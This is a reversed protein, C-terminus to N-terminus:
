KIRSIVHTPCVRVCALCSTCKSHDIKIVGDKEYIAGTPCTQICRMCKTCGVKCDDQVPQPGTYACLPQVYANAPIMQILHKPCMKECHGCGICREQLVEAVGKENIIIAQTPCVKACDGHGLCANKCSFRGKKVCNESACTQSGVYETLQCADCGGHCHVVAVQQFNASQEETFYKRYKDIDQSSIFPCATISKEKNKVRVAFPKCGKEGCKKCNLDPLLSQIYVIERNDKKRQKTVLNICVITALVAIALVLIYVYIM